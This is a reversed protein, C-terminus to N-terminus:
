SLGERTLGEGFIDPGLEVFDCNAVINGSAGAAPHTVIENNLHPLQGM